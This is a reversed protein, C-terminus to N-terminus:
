EDGREGKVKRQEKIRMREQKDKRRGDIRIQRNGGTRAKEEEGRGPLCKYFQWMCSTSM